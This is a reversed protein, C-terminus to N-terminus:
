LNPTRPEADPVLGAAEKLLDARNVVAVVADGARIEVALHHPNDLLDAEAHSRATALDQGVYLKLTEVSFRDDTIFFSLTEEM